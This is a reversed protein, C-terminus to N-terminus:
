VAGNDMDGSALGYLTGAGKVLGGVGSAMARGTDAAAEGWTRAVAPAAAKKIGIESAIQESTLDPYYSQRIVNVVSDDSLNSWDPRKARIQAINDM